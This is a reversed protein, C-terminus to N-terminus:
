DSLPRVQVPPTRGDEAGEGAAAGVHVRLDDVIVGDPQGIADNPV